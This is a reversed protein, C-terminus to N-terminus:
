AIADAHFGHRIFSNCFLCPPPPLGPLWEALIPVSPCLDKGHVLGGREFVLLEDLDDVGGGGVRGTSGSIPQVAAEAAGLAADSDEGDVLEIGDAEAFAEGGEFGFGRFFGGGDAAAGGFGDLAEFRVEGAVGGGTLEVLGVRAVFVEGVVLGAGDEIRGGSGAVEVGGAGDGAPDEARGDAGLVANSDALKVEITRILYL